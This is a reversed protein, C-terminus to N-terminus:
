RFFHKAMAAFLVQITEAKSRLVTYNWAAILLVVAMMRCSDAVTVKMHAQSDMHM